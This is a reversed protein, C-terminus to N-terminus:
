ACQIHIVFSTRVNCFAMSILRHFKNMLTIFFIENDIFILQIHISQHCKQYVKHIINILKPFLLKWYNNMADIDCEHRTKRETYPFVLILHSQNDLVRYTIHFDVFFLM